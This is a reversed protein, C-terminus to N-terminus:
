NINGAIFKYFFLGLYLPWILALGWFTFDSANQIVIKLWVDPSQLFRLASFVNMLVFGVLLYVLFYVFIKKAKMKLSIIEQRPASFRVRAARVGHACEVM